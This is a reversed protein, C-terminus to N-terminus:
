TSIQLKQKMRYADRMSSLTDDLMEGYYWEEDRLPCRFVVEEHNVVYGNITSSVIRKIMEVEHVKDCLPCDHQLREINITKEM